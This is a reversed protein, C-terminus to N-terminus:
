YKMEQIKLFEVRLFEKLMSSLQKITPVNSYRHNNIILYNNNKYFLFYIRSWECDIEQKIYNMIINVL